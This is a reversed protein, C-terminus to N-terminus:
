NSVEVRCFLPDRADEDRVTIIVENLSSIFSEGIPEWQIRDDSFELRYSSGPHTQIRYTILRKDVSLTEIDAIQILRPEGVQRSPAFAQIDGFFPQTPTYNGTTINSYLAVMDYIRDRDLELTGFQNIGAYCAIKIGAEQFVSVARIIYYPDLPATLIFSEWEKQSVPNGGYISDLYDKNPAELIFESLAKAQAWELTVLEKASGLTKIYAIYEETRQISESFLHIDLADCYDNSFTVLSEHIASVLNDGEIAQEFGTLAPSIIKLNPDMNRIREAVKAFWPIAAQFEEPARYSGPGGGPENQIQVWDILNEEQALTLFTEITLLADEENEPIRDYFPDSEPDAPWRLTVITNTVGINKLDQLRQLLLPTASPTISTDWLITRVAKVELPEVLTADRGGFVG